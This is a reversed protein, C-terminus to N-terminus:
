LKGRLKGKRSFLAGIFIHSVSQGIFAGIFNAAFDNGIVISWLGILLGCLLGAPIASAFWIYSAKM